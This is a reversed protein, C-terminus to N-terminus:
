VEYGFKKLQEPDDRWDKSVKVSLELYVKKDLFEEISKRSEIGLKKIAAGQKGLIIMKQSERAVFIFAKIRVIEPSEKYEDVYIEVSYPVEKKFQLLVKERIMESIFFRLPKDTLEDKPYYSPSEPLKEIIVDLIKELNFGLLASTPIIEADTFISQWRSISEKVTIEDSLDIKNIVVIVPTKLLEIKKIIGADFEMDGPETLLLIIDADELATGISKMMSEHLKYGPKIIGPTDSFVIQYSDTNLMGLIRHRTTQAKPTIVSLKEGVLANMLTSKGANPKGIINVFGANHKMIKKIKATYLFL